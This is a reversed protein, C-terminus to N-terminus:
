TVSGDIKRFVDSENWMELELALCWLCLIACVGFRMLVSRLFAKQGSGVWGGRMREFLDSAFLDKVSELYKRRQLLTAEVAAM